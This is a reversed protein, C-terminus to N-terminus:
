GKMTGSLVDLTGMPTTKDLPTVLHLNYQVFYHLVGDVIEYNQKTGRVHDGSQMTIMDLADVLQQAVALLESNDGDTKPFYHIDFPSELRSRRGLLPKVTTKLSAIFFCPPSLGQEVDNQYVKYADGFVSNLRISIAHILDNVM